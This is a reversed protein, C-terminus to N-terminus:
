YVREVAADIFTTTDFAVFINTGQPLSKQVEIARARAERAVDLANATSNRVIGLGVNPVGNSQFYARREASS